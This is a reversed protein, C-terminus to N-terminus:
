SRRWILLKYMRTSMSIWLARLITLLDYSTVRLRVQQGLEYADPSTAPYVLQCILKSFINQWCNDSHGKRHALAYVLIRKVFNAKCDSTDNQLNHISIIRLTGNTPNIGYRAMTISARTLIAGKSCIPYPRGRRTTPSRAWDWAWRGCWAATTMTPLAAASWCSSFRWVICM